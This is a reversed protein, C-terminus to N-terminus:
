IYEMLVITSGIRSKLMFLPHRVKEKIWASNFLLCCVPAPSPAIGQNGRFRRKEARSSIERALGVDLGEIGDVRPATIGPSQTTVVAAVVVTSVLRHFV